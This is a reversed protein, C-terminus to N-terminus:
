STFKEYSDVGTYKCTKEVFESVLEAAMGVDFLQKQTPDQALVQANPELFHSKVKNTIIRDYFPHCRGWAAPLRYGPSIM